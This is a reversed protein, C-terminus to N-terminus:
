RREARREFLRNDIRIALRILEELTQPEESFVLHDKVEPSLNLRFTERLAQDNFGTDRAIRRFESAFVSAPRNGQICLRLRRQSSSVFKPDRFASNLASFFSDLSQLQAPEIAEERLTRFWSLPPGDLLTGIFLIKVRENPFRSPQLDFITRVALIFDRLKSPNGSFRDPLALQPESLPQCFGGQQIADVRANQSQLQLQLTAVQNRLEETLQVQAQHQAHLAEQLQAALNPEVGEM